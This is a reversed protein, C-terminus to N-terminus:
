RYRLFLYRDTTMSLLEFQISVDYQIPKDSNATLYMGNHRYNLVVERTPFAAKLQNYLLMQTKSATGAIKQRYRLGYSEWPKDPYITKLALDTL